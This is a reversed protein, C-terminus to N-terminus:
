RAGAKDEDSPGLMAQQLLTAVHNQRKMKHGPGNGHKHLDAIPIEITWHKGNKTATYRCLGTAPDYSSSSLETSLVLTM